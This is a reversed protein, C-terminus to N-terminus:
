YIHAASVKIIASSPVPSPAKTTLLPRKQQTRSLGAPRPPNAPAITGTLSRTPSNSLSNHQEKSTNMASISIPRSTRHVRGISALTRPRVTSSLNSGTSTGSVARTGSPASEAIASTITNSRNMPSPDNSILREINIPPLRTNVESSQLNANTTTASRYRWTSSPQRSANQSTSPPLPAPVNSMATGILTIQQPNRKDASSPTSLREIPVPPPLPAPAHSRRPSASATTSARSNAVRLPTVRLLGTLKMDPEPTSRFPYSSIQSLAGTSTVSSAVPLSFRNQSLSRPPLSYPRLKPRLKVTNRESTFKAYRHLLPQQQTLFQQLLISALSHVISDKM